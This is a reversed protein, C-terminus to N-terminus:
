DMCLGVHQDNPSGDYATEVLGNMRNAVKTADGSDELSRVSMEYYDNFQTGFYDLFEETAIRNRIMAETAGPKTRFM